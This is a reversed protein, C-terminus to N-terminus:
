YGAWAANTTSSGSSKARLDDPRELLVLSVGRRASALRVDLIDPSPGDTIVTSGGEARMFGDNCDYLEAGGFKSRVM